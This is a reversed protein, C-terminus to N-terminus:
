TFLQRIDRWILPGFHDLAPLVVAYRRGQQTTTFGKLYNVGELWYGYIVGHAMVLEITDLVEAASPPNVEAHLTQVANSTRDTWPRNSKMWNEIEPAWRQCVGHIGARVARVYADAGKPWVQDPPETWRFGAM